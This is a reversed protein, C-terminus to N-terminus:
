VQSREPRVALTVEFLAYYGVLEGFWGPKQMLIIASCCLIFSRVITAIPGHSRAEDHNRHLAVQAGTSVAAAALLIAGAAYAPWGRGAALETVVLLATAALALAATIDSYIVGATWGFHVQVTDYHTARDASVDKFYGGVVFNAYGFFVAGVAIWFSRTAGALPGGVMFGMIPVLAVISANWPPGGWWRRKFPTYFALGVTALTAPVLIWTNFIALVLGSAALGAISVMAVSLASIEKRVLPRYSASIADTDTQFVDTLAQGLGYSFFFPLVALLTKATGLDPLYAIGLLGAIGSVFFLYPRMHVWYRPWFPLSFPTFPKAPVGSPFFAM